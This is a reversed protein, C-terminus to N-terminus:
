KIDFYNEHIWPRDLKLFEDRDICICEPRHEAEYTDECNGINICKTLSCKAPIILYGISLVESATRFTVAKKHFRSMFSSLPYNRLIFYDQRLYRYILEEICEFSVDCFLDTHNNEANNM